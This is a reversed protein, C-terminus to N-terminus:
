PAQHRATLERKLVKGSPGTPFETVLTIIRPYKYAALESAAFDRLEDSTASSGPNLVVAAAVEQGHTEDPVGYVAVSLVAAHRSLVEEVERPYVNFGNRIIMEKKRDLIRLYGEGDKTGLDGTRFWGDVMAEATAEHRNLYGKFLNHGRVVLEGLEGPPLLEIANQIDARAIEVQVGWIAQGVTGPRPSKGVHNFTAVPSTETLGYGEYIDSRFEAKFRDMVAMPLSAGGSICYRLANSRGPNTRAAELLAIYMTPVGFFIKYNNPPKHKEAAHGVYRTIM